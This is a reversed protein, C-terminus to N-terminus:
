TFATKGMSPRAAVIILDGPQFGATLEDLDAFGTPVGTVASSNAQLAEIQEITPWLIEKIWVFGKRDHTQAIQFIKQEARDLLEDVEGQGDYTEQIITTAAEILRRLVAKERVIRRPVRHEARDAGRRAAARPLRLRRRDRLRGREEAGGVAHHRRHGRGSGSVSWPASSAATRRGTSCRTTSSRSSQRHRRRRHADRRARLDGGRLSFPPPPRDFVPPASGTRLPVAPMSSALQPHQLVHSAFATGIARPWAADLPAASGSSTRGSPACGPRTGSCRPRTTPPSWPVGDISTSAGRLRGIPERPASCRRRRSRAAPSSRAPRGARGAAAPVPQVGRGRGAGPQPERAAPVQPRQLYVRGRAPIRRGRAAPRAAERRARRLAPGHPGGRRRAGRGGGDRGREPQGRRLGRAPADGRAPLPADSRPTSARLEDLTAIQVSTSGRAPGPGPAPAGAARLPEPPAGAAAARGRAPDNRHSIRLQALEAAHRAGPLDGARRARRAAAPLAGSSGPTPSVARSCRSSRDLIRGRGRGQAAAPASRV